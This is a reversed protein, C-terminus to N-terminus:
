VTQVVISKNSQVLIQFLYSTKGDFTLEQQLPTDLSDQWRLLSLQQDASDLLYLSLASTLSPDDASQKSLPEGSLSLGVVNQLQSTESADTAKWRAALQHDGPSAITGLLTFSNPAAPDRLIQHVTAPESDDSQLQSIAPNLFRTGSTDLTLGLQLFQQTPSPLSPPEAPLDISWWEDQSGNGNELILSNGIHEIATTEGWYVQQM